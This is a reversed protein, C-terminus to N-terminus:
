DLGGDDAQSAPATTAPPPTIPEAEPKNAAQRVLRALESEGVLEIMVTMQQNARSITLPVKMGPRGRALLTALTQRTPLPVTGIGRITDGPRLGAKHAPSDPLLREIKLSAKSASEFVVGIGLRDPKSLMVTLDRKVPGRQVVLTSTAGAPYRGTLAYLQNASLVPWNGVALVRDGAQLGAKGAPSDPEVQSVIAQEAQTEAFKAGNLWGIAVQGGKAGKLAALFRQVQNSSVAYGSGTNIKIGFRSAMQAYNVGVLQGDMNILPGGSNGPNTPADTVVVDFSNPGVIGVASVIGLTVTPVHDITGLLFPNGIAVVQDGVTLRDSNGLPVYPLPQKGVDRIKLVALDNVPAFGVVDATYRKGAATKISWVKASTTVHNNTLVYGDDSIITGSGGGIFVYAAQTRKILERLKTQRLQDEVDEAAAVPFAWHGIVFTWLIVLSWHGFGACRFGRKPIPYHVNMPCQDNFM